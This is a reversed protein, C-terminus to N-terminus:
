HHSFNLILNIIPLISIKQLLETINWLLETVSGYCETLDWLTVCRETISRLVGHRKRLTGYHGVVSQLTKYLGTIICLVEM